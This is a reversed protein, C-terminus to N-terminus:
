KWKAKSLKLKRYEHSFMYFSSYPKRKDLVRLIHTGFVRLIYYTLTKIMMM